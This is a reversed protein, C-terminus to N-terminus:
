NLFMLILILAKIVLLVIVLPRDFNFKNAWPRLLNTLQGYELLLSDPRKHSGSRTWSILIAAWFGLVKIANDRAWTFVSEVLLLANVNPTKLISRVNYIFIM